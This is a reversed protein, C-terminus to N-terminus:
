QYNRWCCRFGGLWYWFLKEAQPIAKVASHLSPDDGSVFHDQQRSIRIGGLGSASQTRHAVGIIWTFAPYCYAHSAVAASVRFKPPDYPCASYHHAPRRRDLDLRLSWRRRYWVCAVALALCSPDILQDRLSRIGPHAAGALNASSSGRALCCTAPSRSATRNRSESAIPDANIQANLDAFDNEILASVGTGRAIPLVKCIPEVGHVERHDDIFAIM